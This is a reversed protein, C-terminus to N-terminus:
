GMTLYHFLLGIALVMGVLAPLVQWWRRRRVGKEVLSFAVAGVLYSGLLAGAARFLGAQFPDRDFFVDGVAVFFSAWPHAGAQSPDEDFFHSGKLTSPDLPTGLGLAMAYGLLVFLTFPVISVLAVVCGTGREPKLTGLPAFLAVTLGAFLNWAVLVAIPEEFFAKALPYAGAVHLALLSFFLYRKLRPSLM